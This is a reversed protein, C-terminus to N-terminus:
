AAAAAVVRAVRDRIAPEVPEIAEAVTEGDDLRLAISCPTGYGNCAEVLIEPEVEIGRQERLMAQIDIETLVDFGEATLAERVRGLATQLTLPTVSSIAYSMGRHDGRSPPTADPPERILAAPLGQSSRVTTPAATAERRM